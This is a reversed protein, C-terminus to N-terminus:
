SIYFNIFFFGNFTVTKKKTKVMFHFSRGFYFIQSMSGEPLVEPLSVSFSLDIVNISVSTDINLFYFHFFDIKFNIVEM